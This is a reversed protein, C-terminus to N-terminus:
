KSIVELLLVCEKGGPNHGVLSYSGPAAVISLTKGDGYFDHVVNGASDRFELPPCCFPRIIKQGSRIRIPGRAAGGPEGLAIKLPTDLSVDSENKRLGTCGVITVALLALMVTYYRNM